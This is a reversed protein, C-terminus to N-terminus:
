VAFIVFIIFKEPQSSVFRQYPKPINIVKRYIPVHRFLIEFNISSKLLWWGLMFNVYVELLFQTEKIPKSTWKNFPSSVMSKGILRVSLCWYKFKVDDWEFWRLHEMITGPFTVGALM